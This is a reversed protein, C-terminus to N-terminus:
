SRFITRMAQRVKASFFLGPHVCGIQYILLQGGEQDHTCLHIDRPGDLVWCSTIEPISFPHFGQLLECLEVIESSTRPAGCSWCLFREEASQRSHFTQFSFARSIVLVLRISAFSIVLTANYVCCCFFCCIRSRQANLNSAYHLLRQVQKRFM